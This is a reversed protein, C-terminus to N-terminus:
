VWKKVMFDKQANRRFVIYVDGTAVPTGDELSCAVQDKGVEKVLEWNIVKVPKGDKTEFYMDLPGYGGTLYPVLNGMFVQRKEEGFNDVAYQNLAVKEGEPIAMLDEMIKQINDALWQGDQPNLRAMDKFTDIAIKVLGNM